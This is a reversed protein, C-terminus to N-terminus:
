GACLDARNLLNRHTPRIDSRERTTYVRGRTGRIIRRDRFDDQLARDNTFLLRAGSVRALALVHEDNSRCIGQARLAETETDVVADSIRRARGAQLREGFARQFDASPELERLVDGGVVLIGGNSRILWDYFYRGAESQSAEAFVEHSVNADVIACM